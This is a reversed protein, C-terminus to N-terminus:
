TFNYIILRAYIEQQIQHTGSTHLYELDASHKLDRFSTEIGWRLHYLEKLDNLTFSDDLNTVLCEYTSESLKLRVVRFRIEYYDKSGRKLFDFKSTTSLVRFSPDDKIAKTQSYTLKLSVIT